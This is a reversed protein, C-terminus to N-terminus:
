KYRIKNTQFNPNHLSYINYTEGKVPISYSRKNSWSHIVLTNLGNSRELTVWYNEFLDLEQLLVDDRHDLFNIWNTLSTKNEPTKIM